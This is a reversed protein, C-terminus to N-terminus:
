SGADQQMRLSHGGKRASSCCPLGGGQSVGKRTLGVFTGSHPFAVCGAGADWVCGPLSPAPIQHFFYVSKCIINKWVQPPALDMYIVIECGM